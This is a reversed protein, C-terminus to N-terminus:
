AKFVYQPLPTSSCANKDKTRSPHSHDAGREPRKADTYSGGTGMLCSAPQVGSGM